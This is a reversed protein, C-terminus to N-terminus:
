SIGRQEDRRRKSFPLKFRNDKYWIECEELTQPLEYKNTEPIWLALTAVIACLIGYVLGPAWPVAEAQFLLIFFIMLNQYKDFICATMRAGNKKWDRSIDDEERTQKIHKKYM